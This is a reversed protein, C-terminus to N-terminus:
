AGPTGLITWIQRISLHYKRALKDATLGNDYDKRILNNRQKRFLTDTNHFLVHTGRFREVLKLTLRVGIVSAVEPLDGPLEDVTPLIGYKLEVGKFESV